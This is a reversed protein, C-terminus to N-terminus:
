GFVKKYKQLTALQLKGKKMLIALLDKSPILLVDFNISSNSNRRKAIEIYGLATQLAYEIESLSFYQPIKGACIILFLFCRVANIPTTAQSALEDIFQKVKELEWDFVWDMLIESPIQLTLICHEMQIQKKDQYCGAEIFRKILSEFYLSLEEDRTYDHYPHFCVTRLLTSHAKFLASQYVNLLRFRIDFVPFEVNSWDLAKLFLRIHSQLALNFDQTLPSNMLLKLQPCLHALIEEVIHINFCHTDLTGQEDENSISFVSFINNLANELSAQDSTMLFLTHAIAPMLTDRICKNQLLLNLTKELCLEKLGSAEIYPFPIKLLKNKLANCYNAFLPSSTVEPVARCAYLLSLWQNSTDVISLSANMLGEVITPNSFVWPWKQDGLLLQFTIHLAHTNDMSIMHEFCSVFLNKSETLVVIESLFFLFHKREEQNSFLPHKNRKATEISSLIVTHFSDNELLPVSPSTQFFDYVLKGKDKNQLLLLLLKSLGDIQETTAGDSVKLHEKRVADLHDRLVKDNMRSFLNFRLPNHSITTDKLLHKCLTTRNIDDAIEILAEILEYDYLKSTCLINLIEQTQKQSPTESALFSMLYTKFPLKLAHARKALSLRWAPKLKGVTSELSPPSFMSLWKKFLEDDNMTYIKILLPLALANSCAITICQFYNRILKEDLRIVSTAELFREMLAAGPKKLIMKHLVFGELLISILEEDHDVVASELAAMGFLTFFEKRTECQLFLKRYLEISGFLDIKMDLLHLCRDQDQTPKESFFLTQFSGSYDRLIPDITKSLTRDRFLLELDEYARNQIMNEIIMELFDKCENDNLTSEQLRKVLRVAEPYDQHELLFEVRKKAADRDTSSFSTRNWDFLNRDRKYPIITEITCGLELRKNLKKEKSILIKAVEQFAKEDLKHQHQAILILMLHIEDVTLSAALLHLENQVESKECEELIRNYVPLAATRFPTRLLLKAAEQVSCNPSIIPLLTLLENRESESLIQERFLTLLLETEKLPPTLLPNLNYQKLKAFADFKQFLQLLEKEAKKSPKPYVERARYLLIFYSFAISNRQLLRITEAHSPPQNLQQLFQQTQLCLSFVSDATASDVEAIKECTNILFQWPDVAHNSLRQEIANAIKEPTLNSFARIIDELSCENEIITCGNTLHQVAALFATFDILHRKELRVIGFFNDIVAQLFQQPHDITGNNFDDLAIYFNDRTFLYPNVQLWGTARDVNIDGDVKHIVIPTARRILDTEMNANSPPKGVWYNDRYFEECRMLIEPCPPGRFLDAWDVDFPKPPSPLTALLEELLPLLYSGEKQEGILERILWLLQENVNAIYAAYSGRLCTRDLNERFVRRFDSIYTKQQLRIERKFVNIRSKLLSELESKGRDFLVPHRKPFKLLFGENSLWGLQILLQRFEEKSNLSPATVEEDKSLSIVKGSNINNKLIEDLM